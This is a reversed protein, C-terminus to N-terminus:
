LGEHFLIGIGRQLLQQIARAYIGANHRHMTGQLTQATPSFCAGNSGFRVTAAPAAKLVIEAESARLQNPDHPYM